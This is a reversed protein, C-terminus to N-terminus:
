GKYMSSLKTLNQMYCITKEKNDMSMNKIKSRLGNISEMIKEASSGMKQLDESYDKNVFFDIDGNIIQNEYKGIVYHKWIIILLKNDLRSISLISNKARLIDEEDPFIRQIDTMFEIFHQNFGDLITKNDISM